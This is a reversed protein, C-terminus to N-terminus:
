KVAEINLSVSRALRTATSQDNFLGFSAVRRASRFGAQKLFVGLFEATLGARSLGGPGSQEGFILAMAALREPAPLASDSMMAALIQFDPVALLLRGGPKLVRRAAALAAQLEDRYSLRQHFWCAYIIDVSAPAFGFLSRPDAVVDVTGGPTASVITWGEKTESGELHLQLVGAQAAPKDAPATRPAAAAGAHASLSPVDLTTPSEGRCYRAWAAEFAAELHRAFRVVDFLPTQERNQRLRTALAELEAPHTALHVARAVYAEADEVIMDAMGIHTLMTNSIRSAFRNGRVALLPVGAWLADLATTSANLTLTDLFLGIHRHRAFHAAKDPLREAFVLRDPEIGQVVAQKRLSAIQEPAGRVASLWLVSGPVAALIRMWATFVTRDIKEPNNFGGFVFGREPLGCAERGPATEGIRARSAIHYCDPLRPIAERYLGEEGRPVVISDAILYDVFSLGLGGAHGLWYIQIPAPRFALVPTGLNEMYGDIDILIDIGLNRIRRAIELPPLAAVDHYFDVGKRHLRNYAPNGGRRGQTVFAHVEFRGRDHAPFLQLTVHGVPHDTLNPTMYGIRLRRRAGGSNLAADPAPRHPLPSEPLGGLEAVMRRHLEDIREAIRREQVLSIPVMLARYLTNALLRWETLRDLNDLVMTVLQRMTSGAAEFDCEQLKFKLRLNLSLPNIPDLALAKELAAIARPRDLREACVALNTWAKAMVPDIALAKEYAAMAEADRRQQRLTLGLAFHTMPDGPAAAVAREVALQADGSRGIMRLLTALNLLALVHGPERKLVANYFNEAEAIRGLNQADIARRFLQQIAKAAAAKQAQRAAAGAPRAGAARAPPKM